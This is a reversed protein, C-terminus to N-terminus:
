PKLFFDFLLSICEKVPATSNVIKMNLLAGEWANWIFETLADASIDGRITGMTQGQSIQKSVRDKWVTMAHHMKQRCLDSAESIEAALNGILCGTRVESQEHHSIIMELSYRLAEFPDKPGSKLLDDWLISLNGQLNAHREVFAAQGMTENGIEHGFMSVFIINRDRQSQPIM